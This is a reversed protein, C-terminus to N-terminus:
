SQGATDQKWWPPLRKRSRAGVGKNYAEVVVSAVCQTKITGLRARVVEARRLMGRVGRTSGGLQRIMMQENVRGDYRHFVMGTGDMLTSDFASPDGEFSDRLVRVVRGLVEPGSRDYIRYLASVSSICRDEHLQSIKCDNLEVVGAIATERPRANKLSSRFKQFSSVHKTNNLDVFMGAMQEDTLNEYVRCDIVCGPDTFGNDTLAFVRHQGDITLFRGERLNVVVTGIKNLDLEASLKKGWAPDFRRQTDGSVQTEIKAIPVPYVRSDLDTM